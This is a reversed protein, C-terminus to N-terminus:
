RPGLVYPASHTEAIARGRLDPYAALLRDEIDDPWTWRPQVRWYMGESPQADLVLDGPYVIVDPRAVFCSSQEPPIQVDISGAGGTFPEILIELLCYRGTPLAFVQVPQDPARQGTTLCSGFDGDRCFTLTAYQNTEVALALLTEDGALQLREDPRVLRGLGCGPLSLSLFLSLSLSLRM